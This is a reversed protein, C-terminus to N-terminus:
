HATLSEFLTESLAEAEAQDLCTLSLLYSHASHADGLEILREILLKHYEVDQPAKLVCEQLVAVAFRRLGSEWLARAYELAFYQDRAAGQRLLPLAESTQGAWLKVLGKFGILYASSLYPLELRELTSIAEELPAHEFVQSLWLFLVHERIPGIADADSSAEPAQKKPDGPLNFHALQLSPLGRDLEPEAGVEDEQRAIELLAVLEREAAPLHQARILALARELRVEYSDPILQYAEHYAQLADAPRALLELTEARDLLLRDDLEGLSRLQNLAFLTLDLDGLEQYVKLAISWRAPDQNDEAIEGEVLQVALEREEVDLLWSVVRDCVEHYPHEHAVRAEGEDLKVQELWSLLTRLALQREEEASAFLLVRAKIV